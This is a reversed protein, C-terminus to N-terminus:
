IIYDKNKQKTMQCSRKKIEKQLIEKALIELRKPLYHYIYNYMTVGNSLRIQKLYTKKQKEYLKCNKSYIILKKVLDNYYSESERLYKFINVFEEIYNKEFNYNQLINKLSNESYFEEDENDCYLNLIDIVEYMLIYLFEYVSGKYTKAKKIITNLAYIKVNFIDNIEM